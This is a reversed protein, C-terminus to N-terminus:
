ETQNGAKREALLKELAERQSAKVRAEEELKKRRRNAWFKCIALAVLWILGLIIFGIGDDQNEPSAKFCLWVGIAISILWGLRPIAIALSDIADVYFNGLWDIIRGTKM